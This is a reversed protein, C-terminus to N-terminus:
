SHIKATKKFSMSNCGLHRVPHLAYEELPQGPQKPHVPRPPGQSGLRDQEPLLSIKPGTPIQQWASTTAAQAPPCVSEDPVQSAQYSEFNVM